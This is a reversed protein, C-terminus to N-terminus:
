RRLWPLVWIDLGGDNRQHLFCGGLNMLLKTHGFGVFDREVVGFPLSKDAARKFCIAM